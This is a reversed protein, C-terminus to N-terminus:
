QNLIQIKILFIKSGAKHIHFHSFMTNLMYEQKRREARGIVVDSISMKSFHTFFVEM